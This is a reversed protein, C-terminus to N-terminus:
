AHNEPSVTEGPATRKALPGSGRIWGEIEELRKVRCVSVPTMRDPGRSFAPVLAHRVRWDRAAELRPYDRDVTEVRGRVSLRGFVVSPWPVVRQLAASALAVALALDLGADKCPQGLVTGVEVAIDQGALPLDNHSRLLRLAQAVRSKDVGQVSVAGERGEGPDQVLAEVRVLAPQALSADPLFVVGPEAGTRSLVALSPDRVELMGRATMDYHVAFRDQAYRNKEALLYRGGTEEIGIRLCIDVDHAFDQPGAADGEKNIHGVLICARSQSKSLHVARGVVARVQQVSGCPLHKYIGGLRTRNVSDLMLVDIDLLRVLHEIEEWSDTHRLYLPLYSAAQDTDIGVRQARSKVADIGEEPVAYLVRHGDEALRGAADILLTSKGASPDGVVSVTADDPLGPRDGGLVRDLGPMGTELRPADDTTPVRSIHM